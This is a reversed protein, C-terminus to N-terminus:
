QGAGLDHDALPATGPFLAIEAAIATLTSLGVWILAVVPPGALGPVQAKYTIAGSPATLSAGLRNM